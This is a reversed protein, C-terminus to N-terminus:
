RNHKLDEEEKEISKLLKQNEKLMHEIQAAKRKTIEDGLEKAPGIEEEKLRGGLAKCVLRMEEATLSIKWEMKIDLSAM